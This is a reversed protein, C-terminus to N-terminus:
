YNVFCFTTSTHKHHSFPFHIQHHRSSSSFFILLFAFCVEYNFATTAYGVSKNSLVGYKSTGGGCLSAYKPLNMYVPASQCNRPNNRPAPVPTLEYSSNSIGSDSRYISNADNVDRHYEDFTTQMVDVNQEMTSNVLNEYLPQQQQNYRLKELTTAGLDTQNFKSAPLYSQIPLGTNNIVLLKQQAATGIGGNGGSAYASNAMSQHRRCKNLRLSYFQPTKRANNTKLSNFRTDISTAVPLPPPPPMLNRERKMQSLSKPRKALFPNMAIKNADLQMGNNINYTNNQQKLQNMPM